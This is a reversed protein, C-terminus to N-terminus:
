PTKGKSIEFDAFKVIEEQQRLNYSDALSRYIGWKPRVFHESSTGRWMDINERELDFVVEETLLDGVIMRLNGENSFQVRVYARMWRADLKSRPVRALETDYNHPSHRIEYGDGGSQNNGTLTLIPHSDNGGVAKLQFFHTFRTSLSLEAPIYFKWTFIVIEDEFGKVADESQAYTKIENRQRDTIEERDRDRDIDRHLKFVFHNGVSENTDEIIHRVFPHNIPYLDPTEIAGPGGFNRILEYTDVGSIGDSMLTRLSTVQYNLKDRVILDQTHEAEANIASEIESPTISKQTLPEESLEYGGGCSMLLLFLFQYSINKVRRM